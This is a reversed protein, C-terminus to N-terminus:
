LIVTICRQDPATIDLHGQNSRGGENIGIASTQLVMSERLIGTRKDGYKKFAYEIIQCRELRSQVAAPQLCLCQTLHGAMRKIRAITNHCDYDGQEPILLVHDGAEEKIHGVFKPGPLGATTEIIAATLGNTIFFTKKSKAKGIICSFNGLTMRRM